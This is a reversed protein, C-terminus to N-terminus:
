NEALQQELTQQMANLNALKDKMMHTYVMLDEKVCQLKKLTEQEYLSTEYMDEMAMLQDERAKKMSHIQDYALEINQNTTDCERQLMELEQESESIQQLMAKQKETNCQRLCDDELKDAESKYNHNILHTVARIIRKRDGIREIGMTRLDKDSLELLLDGTLKHFQFKYDFQSLNYFALWESVQQTTNLISM